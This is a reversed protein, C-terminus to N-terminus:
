LVRAGDPITTLENKELFLGTLTKVTFVAKPVVSLDKESLDIEEGPIPLATPDWASVCPASPPSRDPALPLRRLAALAGLVGQRQM